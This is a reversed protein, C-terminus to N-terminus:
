LPEPISIWMERRFDEHQNFIHIYIYIHIIYKHIYLIHKYRYRYICIYIYICNYVYTYIYICICIRIRIQSKHTDAWRCKNFHHSNLCKNSEDGWRRWLLFHMGMGLVFCLKYTQNGTGNNKRKSTGTNKRVTSTGHEREHEYSTQKWGSAPTEQTMPTGRTIMWISRHSKGTWLVWGAIPTGGHSHFGGVVGGLSAWMSGGTAKSEEWNRDGPRDLSGSHFLSRWVM